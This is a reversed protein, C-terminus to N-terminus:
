PADGIQWRVKGGQLRRALRRVDAATYRHGDVLYARGGRRPAHSVAYGFGRLVQVDAGLDGFAPVSSAGRQVMFAEIAALEVERSAGLPVVFADAGAASRGSARGGEEGGLPDPCPSRGAAPLDEPAVAGHDSLHTALGCSM